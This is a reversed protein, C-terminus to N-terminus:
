ASVKVHGCTNGNFDRIRDMGEGLAARDYIDALERLIRAVETGNTDEEFAANDCNIKIRVDM